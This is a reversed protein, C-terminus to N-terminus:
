KRAKPIKMIQLQSIDDLEKLAKAVSFRLNHFQKLPVVFQRIVGDSSTM